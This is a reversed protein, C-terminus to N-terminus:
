QACQIRAIFQPSLKTNEDNLKSKVVAMTEIIKQISGDSLDSTFPMAVTVDNADIGIIETSITGTTNGAKASAAVALLSGGINVESTKIDILLRMGAGIRSYLLTNGEESKIPESRYKMFDITIKEHHLKTSFIGGADGTGDIKKVAVQTAINPLLKNVEKAVDPWNRAVTKLSGDESISTSTYNPISFAPLPIYDLGSKCTLPSENGKAASILDSKIITSYNKQDLKKALDESFALSSTSLCAITISISLFNKM